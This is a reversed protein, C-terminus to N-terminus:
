HTAIKRCGWAWIAVAALAGMVDVLIDLESAQREPVFSQHLEDSIAYATAVILAILYKAGSERGWAGLGVLLLLTLVVYLVFHGAVAAIAYSLGPPPPLAQQSSLWFIWGMWFLAPLSRLLLLSSERYSM